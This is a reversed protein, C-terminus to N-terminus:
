PKSEPKLSTKPVFDEYSKAGIRQRLAEWDADTPDNKNTLERLAQMLSPTAKVAEQLIFLAGTVATANM